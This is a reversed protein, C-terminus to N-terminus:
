VGGAFFQAVVYLGDGLADGAVFIHRAFVAFLNHIGEFVKRVDLLAHTRERGFLLEDALSNVLDVGYHLAYLALVGGEFRLVVLGDGFLASEVFQQATFIGEDGIGFALDPLRLVLELM